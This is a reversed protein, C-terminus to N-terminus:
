QVPVLRHSADQCVVLENGQGAEGVVRVRQGPSLTDVDVPPAACLNWRAPLQVALRRGTAEVDVEVVANGDYAWPRTDIAAIVGTVEVPDGPSSADGPASACAALSLALCAGICTPVPRVRHIM